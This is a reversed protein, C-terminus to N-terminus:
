AAYIDDFIGVIKRWHMYRDFYDLGRQKQAALYERDSHLRHLHDVLTAEGALLFPPPESAQLAACFIELSLLDANNIVVNGSMLGEYSVLHFGGTVVEDITVDHYARRALLAIPNVNIAQTMEVFPMGTIVSILKDFSDNSKAGWRSASKSSPSFMVKLPAQGGWSDFGTAMPDHARAMMQVPPRFICNPVVLFDDFTRAFGHAVVLKKDWAMEPADARYVPHELQGQHLHWILQARTGSLIELLLDEVKGPLWNHVQVVKAARLLDRLMAQGTTDTLTLPLTDQSFVLREPKTDSLQVCLSDHGAARQAAALMAAAGAVTSNTLHLIM